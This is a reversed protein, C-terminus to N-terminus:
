ESGKRYVTFGRLFRMQCLNQFSGDARVLHGAFLLTPAAQSERQRRFIAVAQNASGFAAQVGPQVGDAVTLSVREVQEDGSSLDAVVDARPRQGAVQGLHPQELILTVAFTVAYARTFRLRGVPGLIREFM